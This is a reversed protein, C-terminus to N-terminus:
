FKRASFGGPVAYGQEYTESWDDLIKANKNGEPRLHQTIKYVSINSSKANVMLENLYKVDAIRSEDNTIKIVKDGIQIIGDKNALCSLAPFPITIEYNDRGEKDKKLIIVDDYV